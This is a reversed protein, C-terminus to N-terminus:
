EEGKVSASLFYNTLFRMLGRAPNTPFTLGDRGKSVGQEEPHQFSSQNLQFQGPVQCSMRETVATESPDSLVTQLSM